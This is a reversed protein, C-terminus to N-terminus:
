KLIKQSLTQNETIVRVIYVGTSLGAMSVTINGDIFSPQKQLVLRGSMDFLAIVANPKHTTCNVHLVENSVYVSLEVDEVNEIGTFSTRVLNLYFRNLYEGGNLQVPVEVGEELLYSNGSETDDLYLTFEEFGEITQAKFIHTSTEETNVRLPITKNAAPPPFAMIAHEVNNGLASLSIGNSSRMKVADYLRDEDETADELAGILIQNFLSDTEISLWLRSDEGNMRFFQDNLAATRQLNRFNLVASGNLARVYFGQAVSILGNPAGVSGAGTGLGGTGNWYAFDSRHYDAGGSNDDDKVSSM